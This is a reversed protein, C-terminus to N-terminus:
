EILLLLLLFAGGVTTVRTVRRWVGGTTCCAAAPHLARTGAAPTAAIRADIGFILREILDCLLYTTCPLCGAVRRGSVPVRITENTANLSLSPTPKRLPTCM